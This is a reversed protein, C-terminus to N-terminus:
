RIFAERWYVGGSSIFINSLCQGRNFVGRGIFAVRGLFM